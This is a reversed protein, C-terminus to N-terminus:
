RIHSAAPHCDNHFSASGEFLMVKYDRAASTIVLHLMVSRAIERLSTSTSAHDGFETNGVPGQVLGCPCQPSPHQAGSSWPDMEVGHTEGCDPLAAKKSEAKTTLSNASQFAHLVFPKTLDYCGRTDIM